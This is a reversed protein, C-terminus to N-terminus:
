RKDLFQKWHTTEVCLLDLAGGDSQTDTRLLFFCNTFRVPVKVGLQTLTRNCQNDVEEGAGGGSGGLNTWERGMQDEM